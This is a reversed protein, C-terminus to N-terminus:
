GCHYTCGVFKCKIGNELVKGDTMDSFDEDETIKAVTYNHLLDDDQKVGYGHALETTTIYDGNELAGNVDCVWICGEGLSNIIVRNDGEEKPIITGFTGLLFKRSTSNPDEANSIVGFVKKDNNTNALAICPIAENMGKNGCYEGTSSVILGMYNSINVIIDDNNVSFQTRHQGTFDIQSVNANNNLYGRNILQNTFILENSNNNMGIGWTETSSSGEITIARQNYNTINGGDSDNHSAKVHLRSLPSTDGIGLYGNSHIRMIESNGQKFQIPTGSKCNLITEGTTKQLLAFDNTNACDEHAIGAWNAHGVNGIFMEEGGEGIVANGAVDLKQAPSDTGIGVNGTDRDIRMRETCNAWTSGDAFFVIDGDGNSFCLDNSSNYQGKGISAKTTSLSQGDQAFLIYPNDGEQGGTNATDSQIFLVCDGSTGASLHLLCEPDTTGIGVNGNQKIVMAEKWVNDTAVSFVMNGDPGATSNAVQSEIKCMDHSAAGSVDLSRFILRGAVTGATSIQTRSDTIRLEPESGHMELLSDPSQTGLGLGTANITAKHTTGTYFRHGAASPVSHWLTNGNMGFGYPVSSGGGPWLIIRQGDSGNTGNAPAALHSGANTGISVKDAYSAVSSSESWVFAKVAGNIYIDGTLNIDGAVDLKYSPSSDGIGVNGDGNLVLQKTNLSSGNSGNLELQINTSSVRTSKIRCGKEIAIASTSNIFDISSGTGDSTSNNHILISNTVSGAVVEKIHLKKTPDDTGIGINGSGTIRMRESITSGDSYSFFVLDGINTTTNSVIGSIMGLKNSATLDDDYNEFLLQSSNNNTSANRHGRITIIGTQSTTQLPEVLLQGNTNDDKKIHLATTPSDTGIGLNGNQAIRMREQDATFFGLNKNSIHRIYPDQTGGRSLILKGDTGTIIDSNCKM